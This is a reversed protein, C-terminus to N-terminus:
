KLRRLLPPEDGARNRWAKALADRAPAAKLEKLVVQTAGGRGWGGKVQLFARPYARVFERQQAPTLLVVGYRDDPHITAFIKGRVRFDPHNMHESEIAGPFSLALKRFGDPTM